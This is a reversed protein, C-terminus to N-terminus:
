YLITFLGLKDLLPEVSECYSQMNNIGILETEQADM